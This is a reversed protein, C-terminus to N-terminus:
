IKPFAKYENGDLMSGANKKGIKHFTWVIDDDTTYNKIPWKSEGRLLKGRFGNPLDDFIMYEGWQKFFFPVNAAQCQDRLSRVWDPHLPRAKHGSEGGCIVWDLTYQTENNNLWNQFKKFAIKELDIKGLMPEISVFRVKAPIQLLIPIRKDAQEQNEASVGIWVNNSVDQVVEFYEAMREARKTLVQYTHHPTQKVIEFVRAIDEFSNSPHFLDGMFCLFIMRPNKWKFPDHLRSEILATKGNWNWKGNKKEIVSQYAIRADLPFKPNHAHRVAFPLASCNQCGESVKSCGVFPNHTEETWPIKTPM